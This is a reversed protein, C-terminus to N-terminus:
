TIIEGRGDEGASTAPEPAVLRVPACRAYASPASMAFFVALFAVAVAVALFAAFPDFFFVLPRLPVAFAANM